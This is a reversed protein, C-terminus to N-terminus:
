NNCSISVRDGKSSQRPRLLERKKVNRGRERITTALPIYGERSEKERVGRIAM